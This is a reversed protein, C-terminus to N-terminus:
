YTGRSVFSTYSSLYKNELYRMAAKQKVSKDKYGCLHLVGHFIVRYLEQQYSSKWKISNELVRDVSIYIEGLRKNFEDSLDFTIIDTFYNHALFTLNIHLLYEDSCFIYNLDYPEVGEAIFLQTIFRKLDRQTGLIKKDINNFFFKIGM